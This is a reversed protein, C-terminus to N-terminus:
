RSASRFNPNPTTPKAAVDRRWDALLERLRATVDTKSDAINRTEGPDTQLDFLEITKNEDWEILKWRGERVASSPAGGQNGYHPYHWYIARQAISEGRLLPVVSVGDLERKRTQSVGAAELLTPFYDISVIPIACTSGAAAVGPWRIIAPVRIGGEYMWGKGARLPLNSTPCGEGTALGGNDSTFIVVTNDALKLEDLKDLVKGVARDMAEVM